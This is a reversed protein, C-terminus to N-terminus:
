ESWYLISWPSLSEGEPGVRVITPGDREPEIPAGRHNPVIHVQGFCSYACSTYLM